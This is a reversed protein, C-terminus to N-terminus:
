NQLLIIHMILTDNFSKIYLRKLLGYETLKMCMELVIYIVHM